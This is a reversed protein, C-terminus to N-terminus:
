QNLRVTAPKANEAQAVPALITSPTEPAPCQLTGYAAPLQPVTPPANYAVLTFGTSVRPSVAIMKFEPVVVIRNMRAIAQFFRRVNVYSGTATAPYERQWLKDFQPSVASDKSAQFGTLTIQDKVAERQIDALIQSVDSDKSVLPSVRCYADRAQEVERILMPEEKEVARNVENEASIAQVATRKAALVENQSSVFNSWGYYLGLFALLSSVAGVVLPNARKLDISRTNLNLAM